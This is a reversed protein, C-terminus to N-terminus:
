DDEKGSVEAESKCAVEFDSSVQEVVEMFTEPFLGEGTMLLNLDDESIGQESAMSIFEEDFKIKGM